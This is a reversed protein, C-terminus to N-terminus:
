RNNLSKRVVGSEVLLEGSLGSTPQGPEPELVQIPLLCYLPLRLPCAPRELAARFRTEEFGRPGDRLWVIEFSVIFGPIGRSWRFRDGM